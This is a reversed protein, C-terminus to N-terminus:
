KDFIQLKNGLGAHWIVTSRQGSRCYALVPGDSKKVILHQKIISEDEIPMNLVPIHYFLIGLKKCKDAIADATPQSFEEHDPRNCIVALFGAAKIETLDEPFIQEAVSYDNSIKFINIKNSM